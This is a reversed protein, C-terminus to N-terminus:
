KYKKNIKKLEDEEKLVKEENETEKYGIKWVNVKKSRNGSCWTFIIYM